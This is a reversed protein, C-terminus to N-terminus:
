HAPAGRLNLNRRRQAGSAANALVMGCTLPIRVSGSSGLAIGAERAAEAVLFTRAGPAMRVATDVKRLRSAQESASARFEFGNGSDRPCVRTRRRFRRHLLPAKVLRQEPRSGSTPSWAAGCRGPRPFRRSEREVRGSEQGVLPTWRLALTGNETKRSDGLAGV